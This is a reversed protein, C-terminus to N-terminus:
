IHILSLLSVVTLFYLGSTLHSVDLKNTCGIASPYYSYSSTRQGVVDSIYLNYAMNSSSCISISLQNGSPNPFVKIEVESNSLENIGNTYPPPQQFGQTLIYSSNSFKKVMTMEGVTASYTGNSVTYYGGASSISFPSLMAVQGFISLNGITSIILVFFIKKM